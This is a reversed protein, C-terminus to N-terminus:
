IKLKKTKEAVVFTMGKLNTGEVDREILIRWLLEKLFRRVITTPRSANKDDLESLCLTRGVSQYMDRYLDSKTLRVVGDTSSNTWNNSSICITKKTSFERKFSSLVLYLNFLGQVRKHDHKLRTRSYNFENDTLVIEETVDMLNRECLINQIFIALLASKNTESLAYNNWIQNYFIPAILKGHYAGCLIFSLGTPIKKNLKKHVCLNLYRACIYQSSRAEKDEFWDSFRSICDQFLPDYLHEFICRGPPFEIGSLQTLVYLALTFLDRLTLKEKVINFLVKTMEPNLLVLKLPWKRGAHTITNETEFNSPRM